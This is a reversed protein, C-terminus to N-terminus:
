ENLLLKTEDSMAMKGSLSFSRVQYTYEKGIRVEIDLFDSDTILPSIAVFSGSGTKRYVVYGKLSKSEEAEWSVKIQITSTASDVQVMVKSIAPAASMDKLETSMAVSSESKNGASDVAIVSYNWEGVDPLDRASLVEAKFNGITDWLTNGAKTRLLTYFQIDADGGSRWNVTVEPGNTQISEIFPAQPATVDPLHAVLIETPASKNMNTDLSILYYRFGNKAKKPLEDKFTRGKHVDANLLSFKDDRVKNSSRYIQYGLLDAPANDNWSLVIAGEEAVATFDTPTLPAIKDKTEAITESGRSKNGSQDLAFVEYTYVGPTETKDVFNPENASIYAENLKVFETHTTRRYVEYGLIDDDKSVNWSLTITQDNVESNLNRVSAPPTLDKPTVEVVESAESEVNFYDLGVFKYYYTTGNDLHRDIFFHNELEYPSALFPTTNQKEFDGGRASSRYIDYGYFRKSEITIDLMAISDGGEAKLGIPGSLVTKRSTNVETEALKTGQADMLRYHANSRPAAQDVYYMGFYNALEQSEIAKLFLALKMLGDATEFAQEDAYDSLNKLNENTPKASTGMAIPVDNLRTWSTGDKREVFYQDNGYISSAFWKLEVEGENTVRGFFSIKSSQAIAGGVLFLSLITAFVRM